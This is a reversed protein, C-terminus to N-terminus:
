KAVALAPINRGDLYDLARSAPVPPCLPCAFITPFPISGMPDPTLPVTVEHTCTLELTCDRTGIIPALDSLACYTCSKVRRYPAVMM